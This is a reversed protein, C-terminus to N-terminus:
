EPQADAAKVGERPHCCVGKPSLRGQGLAPGSRKRWGGGAWVRADGLASLGKLPPSAGRERWLAAPHGPATCPPWRPANERCKGGQSRNLQAAASLSHLRSHQLPPQEQQWEAPAHLTGLLPSEWGGPWGNRRLAASGGGRQPRQRGPQRRSCPVWGPPPQRCGSGRKEPLRRMQQQRTDTMGWGGKYSSAAPSKHRENRAQWPSLQLAPFLIGGPQQQQQLPFQSAALPLPSPAAAAAATTVVLQPPSGPSSADGGGRTARKKAGRMQQGRLSEAQRPPAGARCLHTLTALSDPAEPSPAAAGTGGRGVAPESRAHGSEGESGPATPPPLGLARRRQRRTRSDRPLDRSGRYSAPARATFQSPTDRAM